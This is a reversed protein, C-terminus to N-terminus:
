VACTEMLEILKQRAQKPFYKPDYEDILDELFKIAKGFEDLESDKNLIIEHEEGLEDKWMGGSRVDYFMPRDKNGRDNVVSIFFSFEAYIFGKEATTDTYEVIFTVVEQGLEDWHEFRNDQLDRIINDTNGKKIILAINKNANITHRIKRDEIKANFKKIKELIDEM